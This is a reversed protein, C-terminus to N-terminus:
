PAACVADFVAYFRKGAELTEATDRSSYSPAVGRLVDCVAQESKTGYSAGAACGTLLMLGTLM